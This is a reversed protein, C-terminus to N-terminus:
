RVWPAGNAHREARGLLVALVAAVILIAEPRGDARHRRGRLQPSGVPDVSLTLILALPILASVVFLAIIRRATRSHLFGGAIRM